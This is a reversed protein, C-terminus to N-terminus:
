RGYIPGCRGVDVNYLPINNNRAAEDRAKKEKYKKWAYPAAGLLVLAVGLGVGIGIAEPTPGPISKTDSSDSM